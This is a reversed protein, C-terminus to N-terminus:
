DYPFKKPPQHRLSLFDALLKLGEAKSFGPFRESLFDALREVDYSRVPAWPAGPQMPPAPSPYDGRLMRPLVERCVEDLEQKRGVLREKQTLLDRVKEDIADIGEQLEEQRKRLAKEVMEVNVAISSM